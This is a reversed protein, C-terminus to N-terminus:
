NSDDRNVIRNNLCQCSSYGSIFVDQRNLGSARVGEGVDAENRYVQASDIHRPDFFFFLFISREASDQFSLRVSLWGQVGRDGFSEHRLKPVRRVRSSANQAIFLSHHNFLPKISLVNKTREKLIQPNSSVTSHRHM